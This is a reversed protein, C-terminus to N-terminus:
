WGTIIVDTLNCGYILSQHRGGILERGRGYSPLPEVVPWDNSDQYLELLLWEIDHVLLRSCCIIGTAVLDCFIAKYCRRFSSRFFRGKPVLLKDFIVVPQKIVNEFLVLKDPTSLVTATCYLM